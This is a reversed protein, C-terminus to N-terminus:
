YGRLLLYNEMLELVLVELLHNLLKMENDLNNPRVKFTGDTTEGHFMKNRVFYSYKISLLTVLEADVTTHLNSNIHHDIAIRYVPNNPDDIYNNRCTLKENLLNMIRSDHYRKVFQVLADTKKRTDFDNLIMKSWRFGQLENKTYANTILISQSFSTSNNLIFDRMIRMCEFEKPNNGQYMFLRNFARWLHDFKYYMDDSAIGKLWYSMAIRLTQGKPTEKLLVDLVNSSCSLTRNVFNGIPQLINDCETYIYDPQGSKKRVISISDVVPFDASVAYYCLLAKIIQTNISNNAKSLIEGDAYLRTRLLVMRCSKWSFVFTDKFGQSGPYESYKRGIRYAPGNGKFRISVQYHYIRNVGM